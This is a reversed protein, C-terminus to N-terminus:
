AGLQDALRRLWVGATGDYPAAGGSVLGVVRACSSEAGAAVADPYGFAIRHETFEDEDEIWTEGSNGRVVDLDLDVARVVPGDWRPPSTIDVYVQVPGGVDHFTALWGRDADDGPPPVLGIQNTPAVYHAGPRDMATGAPIGLWDGHEDSGLYWGDFEWHPRDGWKTMVVRIGSGPTLTM